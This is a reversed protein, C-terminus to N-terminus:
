NLQSPICDPQLRLRLLLLQLRLLSKVRSWLVPLKSCHNYCVQTRAASTSIFFIDGKQGSKMKQALQLAASKLLLTKGCGYDSDLILRKKGGQLASLQGRNWLVVTRLSSLHSARECPAKKKKLSAAAPAEGGAEGRLVEVDEPLPVESTLGGATGVVAEENLERTVQKRRVLPLKTYPPESESVLLFGVIRTLLNEYQHDVPFHKPQMAILKKFWAHLNDHSSVDLIFRRCYRCVELRSRSSQHDEWSSILPLALVRVYSWNSDLIDEHFRKLVQSRRAMQLAAEKLKQHVNKTTDEASKV